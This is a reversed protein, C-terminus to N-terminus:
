QDQGFDDDTVTPAGVVLSLSDSALETRTGDPAIRILVATVTYSGDRLHILHKDFITRIPADAGELTKVTSGSVPGDWILWLERNDPNSTIDVRPHVDEHSAVIRPFSLKVAPKAFAPTTVLFIVLGVM